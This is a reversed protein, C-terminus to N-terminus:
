MQGSAVRGLLNYVSAAHFISGALERRGRKDRNDHVYRRDGRIHTIIWRLCVADMFGCDGLSFNAAQSHTFTDSKPKEYLNLEGVNGTFDSRSRGHGIQVNGRNQLLWPDSRVPSNRLDCM